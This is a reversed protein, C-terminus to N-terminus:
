KYVQLISYKKDIKKPVVWDNNPKRIEECKNNETELDLCSQQGEDGLKGKPIIEYLQGHEDQFRPDRVRFMNQASSNTHMNVEGYDPNHDIDQQKKGIRLM